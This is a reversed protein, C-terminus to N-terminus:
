QIGSTTLKSQGLTLSGGKPGKGGTPKQLFKPLDVREFFAYDPKEREKLANGVNEGAKLMLMGPVNTSGTEWAQTGQYVFQVKTSYEQMNYDGSGRFSVKRPKPGDISAVLEITGNAGASCGIAQLRKTLSEQVRTQQAADRIGSTNIKVTTGAKLVFLSPDSLAKKLLSTAAAHPIEAAILAGPKKEGDTTGFFTWGGASRVNEQGEYTWLKLQNAVDFLYKGNALVYDDGVFDIKGQIHLGDAGMSRELKGSAVDWVVVKDNSVCALRKGSPSFALNPWLLKDAVPEQAIVERKTVDFLGIDTGTIYAILRRDPSLAPSVGDVNMNLTCLPEIEPFKWLVLNGHRSSTALTEADVFEVWNVDRQPGQAEEYPTWTTNKEATSGQITWVELRDQNGFGFDERRMVVQEGDDHLAIPVMSGPISAGKSSKGTALDCLVVRSSPQGGPPAAIFGVAAKKAALNVAIGKIGEFFSTKPPLAATKPKFAAEAALKPIEVAWEGPATLTVMDASSLNVKITAAGGSRGASSGSKKGAPKSKSSKPKAKFPDEEKSKFPNDDDAKAAETAFKQDAASLKKLDIELESGDEKELTVVGNELARFKAKIKFKGKADTWTRMGDDAAHSLTPGGAALCVLLVTWALGVRRAQAFM